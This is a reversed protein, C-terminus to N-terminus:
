QDSFQQGLSGLLEDYISILDVEALQIRGFAIGLKHQDEISGLHIGSHLIGNLMGAVTTNGAIAADLIDAQDSLALKMWELFRCASERHALTSWVLRDFCGQSEDGCVPCFPVRDLSMIVLDYAAIGSKWGTDSYVQNLELAQRVVARTINAPDAELGDPRVTYAETVAGYLPMEAASDLSYGYVVSDAPDVRYAVGWFNWRHEPWGGHVLVPRDQALAARIAELSVQNGGAEHVSRFSLGALRGLEDLYVGAKGGPWLSRCLDERATFTFSEGSLAALWDYDITRGLGRTIEEIAVALSSPYKGSVPVCGLPGPAVRVQVEKGDRLVVLPVSDAKDASLAQATRVDDNTRVPVSDYVLILDGPVLGARAAQSGPLVQWIEPRAIRRYIDGTEPRAKRRTCGGSVLALAVAAALVCRTGRM